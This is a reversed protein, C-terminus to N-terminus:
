IFDDLNIMSAPAASKIDLYKTIFDVSEKPSFYYCNNTKNKSAHERMANFCAEVTKTEDIETSAPYSKLIDKMCDLVAILQEKNSHTVLDQEMMILYDNKLM